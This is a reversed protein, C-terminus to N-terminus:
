VFQQPANAAPQVLGSITDSLRDDLRETLPLKWESACVKKTDRGWRRKFDLPKVGGILKNVRSPRIGHMRGIVTDNMGMQRMGTMSLIETDTFERIPRGLKKMEEMNEKGSVYVLNALGNRDPNGDVHHVQPKGKPPKGVHALMVARHVLTYTRKGECNLAVKHYGDSNRSQSLIKGRLRHKHGRVRITRDISRIRGYTSAQYYKHGPITKWVEGELTYAALDVPKMKTKSKTKSKAM